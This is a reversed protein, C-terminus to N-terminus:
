FPMKMLEGWLGMGGNNGGRACSVNCDAGSGAGSFTALRSSLALSSSSNMSSSTHPEVSYTSYARPAKSLVWRRTSIASSESPTTTPM